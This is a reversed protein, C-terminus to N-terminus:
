IGKEKKRWEKCTLCIPVGKFAIGHEDLDTWQHTPGPIVGCPARGPGDLMTRLEECVHAAGGYETVFFIERPESM